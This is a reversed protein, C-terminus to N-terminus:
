FTIGEAPTVVYNSNGGNTVRSANETGRFEVLGTLASEFTATFTQEAVDFSWTPNGASLADWDIMSGAVEDFVSQSAGATLLVAEDKETWHAGSVALTFAINGHYDLTFTVTKGGGGGDDDGGCSALVLGFALLVALTASIGFLKRKMM